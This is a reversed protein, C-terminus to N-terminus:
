LPISPRSLDSLNSELPSTFTSEDSLPNPVLYSQRPNFNLNHVISPSRRDDASPYMRLPAGVGFCHRLEVASYLKCM